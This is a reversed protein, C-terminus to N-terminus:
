ETLDKEIIQPPTKQVPPLPKAAPLNPDVTGGEELSADPTPEAPPTEEEPTAETESQGILEARHDRFWELGQKVSGCIARPTITAGTLADIEGGDKKVRWDTNDLSRPQDGKFILQHLWSENSAANAGLGPTESHVVIRYGLVRGEADVGLMGEILGSYGQRTGVTFAVGLIKGDQQAFYLAKQGAVNERKTIEVGEGLVPGLVAAAADRAEAELAAAIPEKTVKYVQSLAAAAVLCVLALVVAMKVLDKM